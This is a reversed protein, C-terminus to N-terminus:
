AVTKGVKRRVQEDKYQIGKGKYPEVPYFARLRAAAAGVAQKDPGTVALATGGEVAVTVGDPVTYEVPSAFGLTLVVQRGQVAARFGTGNIVLDKRYGRSVGEIMNAVLSRALGHF